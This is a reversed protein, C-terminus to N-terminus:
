QVCAQCPNNIRRSCASFSCTRCCTVGLFYYGLHRAAIRRYYLTFKENGHFENSRFLKLDIINKFNTQGHPSLTVCNLILTVDNVCKCNVHM